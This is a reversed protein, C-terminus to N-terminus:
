PQGTRTERHARVAANAALTTRSALMGAHADSLQVISGLGVGRSANMACSFETAHGPGVVQTATPYTTELPLWGKPSRQFPVDHDSSGAGRVGAPALWAARRSTAQVLVARHMATPDDYSPTCACVSTSRQFPLPHDTCALGLQLRVCSSVSMETAQGLAGSQTATPKDSLEV